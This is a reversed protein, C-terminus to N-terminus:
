DVDEDPLRACAVPRASETVAMNSTFSRLIDEIGGGGSKSKIDFIKEGIRDLSQEYASDRQLSPAYVQRLAKFGDVMKKESANLLLSLFNLLPLSFPPRECKIDPHAALFREFLLRAQSIKELVLLHLISQAIYLDVEDPRDAASSFEVLMAAYEEANDAHLFHWRAQAFDKYRWCVLAIVRHVSPDGFKAHETSCSKSWEVALRVFTQRDDGGPGLLELLIKLKDLSSDSVPLHGDIHAQVFMCALEKGSSFSAISTSQALFNSAGDFVLQAADTHQNHTSYRFFITKYLQHSEYVDGKALLDDLKRVLRGVRAAKRDSAM